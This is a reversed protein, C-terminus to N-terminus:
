ISLVLPPPSSSRNAATPWNLVLRSHWFGAIQPKLPV